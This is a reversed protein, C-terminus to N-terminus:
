DELYLNPLEELYDTYRFLTYDINIVTLNDISDILKVLDYLNTKYITDEFLIKVYVVPVKYSGCVTFIEEYDEKDKYIASVYNSYKNNIIKNILDKFNDISRITDAQIKIAEKLENIKNTLDANNKFM